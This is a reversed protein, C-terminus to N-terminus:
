RIKEKKGYFVLLGQLEWLGREGLSSPLVPLWVPGVIPYVRRHLSKAPIQLKDRSSSASAFAGLDEAGASHLAKTGHNSSQLQELMLKCCLWEIPVHAIVSRGGPRACAEMRVTVKLRARESTGMCSSSQMALWIAPVM